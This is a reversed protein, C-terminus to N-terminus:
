RCEVLMLDCSAGIGISLLLAIAGAQLQLGTQGDTLNIFIDVTPLSGLRSLNRTWVRNPDLGASAVIRDISAAARNQTAVLKIDAGAVAAAALAENLASATATRMTTQMNLEAAADLMQLDHFHPAFQSIAPGLLRYGRPQRWVILGAAGDAFISNSNRRPMVRTNIKDAGIVLVNQLQPRATLLDHALDIARIMSSGNPMKLEFIPTRSPLGLAEHIRFVSLRHFQEDEWQHCFIAMGISEAAIEEAELTKKGAAIALTTLTDQTAIVIAEYGGERELRAVDNRFRESKALEQVGIRQEPLHCHVRSIHIESM